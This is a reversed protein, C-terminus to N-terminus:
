HITKIELIQAKILFDTMQLTIFIVTILYIYDYWETKMRQM